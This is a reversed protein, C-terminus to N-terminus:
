TINANISLTVYTVPDDTIHRVVGVLIGKIDADTEWYVETDGEAYPAVIKLCPVGTKHNKFVGRAIIKLQVTGNEVVVVKQGDHGGLSSYFILKDGNLIGQKSLTDGSAHMVFRDSGYFEFPVETQTTPPGSDFTTPPGQPLVGYDPLYVKDFPLEAEESPEIHPTFTNIPCSFLASIKHALLFPIKARRGEAMARIEKEDHELHVSFESWSIGVNKRLNRLAAALTLIPEKKPVTHGGTMLDAVECMLCEALKELLSAAPNSKVGNELHSIYQPSTGALKALAVRTMKPNRSERM